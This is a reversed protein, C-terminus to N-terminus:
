EGRCRKGDQRDAGVRAVILQRCFEDAVPAEGLMGSVMQCEIMATAARIGVVNIIPQCDIGIAQAIPSLQHRCSPILRRITPTNSAEVEGDFSHYATVSVLTKWSEWGPVKASGSVSIKRSPA